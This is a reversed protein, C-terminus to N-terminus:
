IVCCAGVVRLGGRGGLFGVGQPRCGAREQERGAFFLKRLDEGWSGEDGMVSSGRAAGERVVVRTGM